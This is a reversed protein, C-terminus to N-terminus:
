GAGDDEREMPANTDALREQAKAFADAPVNRRLVDAGVARQARRRKKAQDVLKTRQARAEAVRRQEAEAARIAESLTREGVPNSRALNTHSPADIARSISPDGSGVDPGWGQERPYHGDPTTAEDPSPAYLTADDQPLHASGESGIQEPGSDVPAEVVEADIAGEKLALHQARTIQAVDGLLEQWPEKTVSVAVREVSKGLQREIIHKAAEMRDKPECSEDGMIDVMVQLAADLNQRYKEKTRNLHEAVMEDYLDRPVMEMTKTVKPIRGASDRCRGYRLEEDDLDEVTLFGNDFLQQRTMNRAQQRLKEQAHVDRYFHPGEVQKTPPPPGPQIADYFENMAMVGV